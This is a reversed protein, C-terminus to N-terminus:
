KSNKIEVMKKTLDQFMNDVQTAFIVQSLSEYGCQVKPWRIPDKTKFKINSVSSMREVEIGKIYKM